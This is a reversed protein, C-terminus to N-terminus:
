IRRAARKGHRAADFRYLTFIHASTTKGSKFDDGEVEIHKAPASCCVARASLWEAQEMVGGNCRKTHRRTEGSGGKHIVARRRSIAQRNACHDRRSGRRLALAAEHVHLSYYGRQLVLPIALAPHVSIIRNEFPRQLRRTQITLSDPWCWSAPKKRGSYSELAACYVDVSAFIREAPLSAKSAQARARAYHRRTPGERNRGLHPREIKGAKKREILARAFEAAAPSPAGRIVGTCSSGEFDRRGRRSCSRRGARTWRARITADATGLGGPVPRRKWTLIYASYITSGACQRGKTILDFIPLVEAPRATSKRRSARRMMRPINGKASAAARSLPSRRVDAAQDGRSGAECLPADARAAGRRAHLRTRRLVNRLKGKTLGLAKACSSSAGNSHIGSSAVGIIVDGARM